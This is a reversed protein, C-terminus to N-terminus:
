AETKPDQHFAQALLQYLEPHKKKLLEPREFFYESVVAFFEAENTIGYPNIDSRNDRILNIERHILQLWPKIYERGMFFEPVGDTSGDSKDILHVFEHIATNEKDTKNQFSNRLAQQSLVMVRQLAGEGVIGLINREGSTQQFDRDFSDPYLLVEDLNNYEWDGLGFIPIIASAAIYVRDIETVETRVGVIRVAALFRAMRNEFDARQKKDLQQYFAVDRQLIDSYAPPLPLVANNGPKKRFLVLYVALMIAIILIIPLVNM